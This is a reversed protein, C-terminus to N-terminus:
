SRSGEVSRELVYWYGDIWYSICFAGYSMVSM